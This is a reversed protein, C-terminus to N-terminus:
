LMELNNGRLHMFLLSFFSITQDRYLQQYILQLQDADLTSLVKEHMPLLIKIFSIDQIEYSVSTPDVITAMKMM